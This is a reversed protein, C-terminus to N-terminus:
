LRVRSHGFRYRVMQKLGRRWRSYRSSLLTLPRRQRVASTLWNFVSSIILSAAVLHLALVVLIGALVTVVVDKLWMKRM